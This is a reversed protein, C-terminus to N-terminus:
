NVSEGEYTLIEYNKVELQAARLEPTGGRMKAMEQAEFAHVYAKDGGYLYEGDVSRKKLAVYVAASLEAPPPNIINNIDAPTPLTSSRSIHQKFADQVASLPMDGLIWIFGEVLTETEAQTKGFTNLMVLSQSIAMALWKRGQQSDLPKTMSQSSDSAKQSLDAKQQSHQTIQSGDDSILGHLPMPLTSKNQEELLVHVELRKLVESLIVM